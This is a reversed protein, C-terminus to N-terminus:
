EEMDAAFDDLETKMPYFRDLYDRHEDPIGEALKSPRRNYWTFVDYERLLDRLYSPQIQAEDQLTQRDHNTAWSLAVANEYQATLYAAKRDSLEDIARLDEYLDHNLDDPLKEPDYDYLDAPM